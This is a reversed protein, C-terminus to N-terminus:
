YKTVSLGEKWITIAINGLLYYTCIIYLPVNVFHSIINLQYIYHKKLIKVNNEATSM